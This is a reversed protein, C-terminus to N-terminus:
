KIYTENERKIVDAEYDSNKEWWDKDWERSYQRLKRSMKKAMTECEQLKSFIKDHLENGKSIDNIERLVECLTRTPFVGKFGRITM